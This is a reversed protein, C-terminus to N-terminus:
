RSTTAHKEKDAEHKEDKPTEHAVALVKGTMADVNVEDIGSKGPTAFDYSYILHGGENELEHSKVKGKPVRAQAIARAKSESLKPHQSTAAAPAPSSSAVLLISALLIARM